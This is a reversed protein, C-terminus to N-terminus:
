SLARGAYHAAITAASLAGDYIAVEDLDGAGFLGAGARSMFYLTSNAFNGAGTGSDRKTYAVPQGDVYPRSRPPPRRAHHRARLRLPAM